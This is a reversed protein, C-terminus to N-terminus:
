DGGIASEGVYKCRGQRVCGDGVQHQFVREGQFAGFRDSLMELMQAPSTKQEIRM